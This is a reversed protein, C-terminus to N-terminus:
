TALKDACRWCLGDDNCRLDWYVIEGADLGDISRDNGEFAQTVLAIADADDEVLPTDCMGCRYEEVRRVLRHFPCLVEPHEADVAAAAACRAGYFNHKGRPDIVYERFECRHSRARRRADGRERGRMREVLYHRQAERQPSHQHAAYQHLWETMNM